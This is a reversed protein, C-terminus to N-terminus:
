KTEMGRFQIVFNAGDKILKEEEKEAYWIKHHAVALNQKSLYLGVGNGNARRSYFLEFLREIDDKDVSPGSNAIVVLGNIIDIKIKRNEALGVWYLANNLINIFVPVIRSKVDVIVMREFTNSVSFEVRQREFRDRFFVNVNKLIEVGTIDDRSQYGSLKLPSLFRLYETFQKHAKLANQFGIQQKADTSMSNLARTVAQDQASLEHALVEFSIGLQALNRIQNVEQEAKAREEEAIVFASDLDIGNELKDLAQLFADYKYAFEDALTVYIADFSNLISEIDSSETVDDLISLAQNEFIKKDERSQAQWVNKLREFTREINSSYRNIQHTLATESSKYKKEASQVPSLFHGKAELQNLRERCTQLLETLESFMDRYSRYQEELSDTVKAPKYPVKLDTRLLEIQDIKKVLGDLQNLSIAIDSELESHLTKAEKVQDSLVDENKKLTASFTKVNIRASAKQAKKQKQRAKSLAELMVQRNDSKGGFFNDALKMLLQKVLIKLERAAQNIIFGERGAKDKLQYNERQHLSIHGFLRRSAWYYRGANKGRREEIEFFDNTSKGYPLVRLGDRFIMFGSYKKSQEVLHDHLSQEHTSKAKELEFTGIKIDFEGTQTLLSMGPRRCMIAIDTKEIGFATIKGRFWGKKDVVGEVKHELNSFENYDFVDRYNLIENRNVNLWFEKSFAQIEYHFTIKENDSERKFPDVFARLTDVLEVEIAVYEESDRSLDGRNTLLSLDRNLDLSFLATGHSAGDLETVKDLIIKWHDLYHSNFTFSKSLGKVQDETSIFEKTNQKNSHSEFAEKEDVSFREWARRLILEDPNDDSPELALNDLMDVQLESCLEPLQDLSDFESMPVKIDHLSLYTNEFLRWDILAASFSTNKKKTVILTVPALFATSLRGIGKEGQTSRDPLGFRDIEPLLKKTTKSATGITLWSDSLQEYTMGCGNDIIAGCKIDGDYLHLAVDRAYADYSNKWLESIATPADAIQGKGLHDITRAQAKFSVAKRTSKIM